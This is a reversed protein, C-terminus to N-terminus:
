SPAVVTRPTLYPKRVKLFPYEIVYFTLASCLVLAPLVVAMVFATQQEMSSPVYGLKKALAYCSGMVFYHNLYMSYSITGLWALPRDIFRPIPIRLAVYSAILLGYGLGEVTSMYVWLFSADSNGDFHYYGGRRNFLHYLYSFALFGGILVLPNGLLRPIRKYAAFALMGIIFQDARGFVTWYALFKASGHHLYGMLRVLACAVLVGLLYKLGYRRSFVLLFPFILYLQMEVLVTWGVGPYAFRDLLGLVVAFMREPPVPNTYFVILTWVVFLPAIRLLRGRFFGAYDVDKGDTLRAFLFGSLTLFLAVGTHGEEMLSFPFYKPVAHFPVTGNHHMAHWMLVMLAALFRLHDLRPFYASTSSKM